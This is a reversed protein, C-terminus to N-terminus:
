DDALRDAGSSHLRMDVSVDRRPRQPAHKEIPARRVLPAGTDQFTDAVFPLDHLKM